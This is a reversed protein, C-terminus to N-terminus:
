SDKKYRLIVVGSGGAGRSGYVPPSNYRWRGGGGGGTNATGSVGNIVSPSTQPHTGGPAGRGGGGPGAAGGTMNYSGAGGGGAYLVPSGTISSARGNGGNGGAPGSGGAGGAGGGGGGRFTGPGAQYGTGGNNGQSPSVPPSNGLGGAVIPAPNTGGGGGSGGNGGVGYRSGRGGGTAGSGSFTATSSSGPSGDAEPTGGAGGGGVTITYPTLLDVTASGERMGGAGGGGEGASGGGAVVLFEVPPLDVLPWSLEKQLKYQDKISWKGPSTGNNVLTFDGSSNYRVLRYVVGSVTIDSQTGGTNERIRTSVSTAGKLNGNTEGKYAVGTDKLKRISTISM